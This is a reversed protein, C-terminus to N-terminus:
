QWANQDWVMSDWNSPRATEKAANEGGGCSSATLAVLTALALAVIGYRSRM